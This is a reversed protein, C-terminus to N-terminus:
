QHTDQGDTEAPRVRPVAFRRLRHLDPLCPCPLGTAAMPLERRNDVQRDVPVGAPADNLHVAVIDENKM